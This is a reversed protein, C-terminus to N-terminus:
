ATPRHLDAAKIQQWFAREEATEAKDLHIDAVVINEPLELLHALRIATRDGMKARGSRYSSIVTQNVELLKAARYDSAPKGQYPYAAKLRELYSLTQNM